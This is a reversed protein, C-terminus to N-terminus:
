RDRGAVRPGGPKRTRRQRTPRRNPPTDLEARDERYFTVAVGAGVKTARRLTSARISFRNAGQSSLRAEFGIDFEKRRAADWLKRSKPSLGEILACLANIIGDPGNRISRIEVFLCHHGNMRDSFMVSVREGFEAALTGLPATSEIDLDVNLFYPPPPYM